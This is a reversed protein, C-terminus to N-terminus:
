RIEIGVLLTIVLGILLWEFRREGGEFSSSYCCKPCADEAEIKGCSNGKNVFKSIPLNFKSFLAFRIQVLRSIDCFSVKLM